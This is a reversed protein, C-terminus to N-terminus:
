NKYSISVLVMKRTQKPDFNSNLPSNLDSLSNDLGSPTRLLTIINTTYYKDELIDKHIKMEVQNKM